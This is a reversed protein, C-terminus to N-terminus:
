GLVRAQVGGGWGGRFTGVEMCREAWGGRGFRGGLGFRAATGGGLRGGKSRVKGVPVHSNNADLVTVQVSGQAKGVSGPKRPGFKPLPNSTMQHSAESMAYAELVPVQCTHPSLRPILHTLLLLPPTPVSKSTMQHLAESM